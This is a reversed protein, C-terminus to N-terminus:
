QPKGLGSYIARIGFQAYKWDKLRGLTGLNFLWYSLGNTGNIGEVTDIQFGCDIFMRTISKKTFFRLHTYDLIGSEQYKWDQKIIIHAIQYFFLINPISAVVFGGDVLYKHCTRLAAEPNILHELVDNFIICDFKTGNLQHTEAKFVGCIANDLKGKAQEAAKPNPEIGWVTLGPRESKLKAGFGGSSCGVDLVSSIGKPIFRLMEPRDGICYDTRNAYVDELSAYQEDM